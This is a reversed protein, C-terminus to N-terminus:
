KSQEKQETKGNKKEQLMKIIIKKQDERDFGGSNDFLKDAILTFAVDGNKCKMIIENTAKRPLELAPWGRSWYHVLEWQKLKWKDVYVFVGLSVTLEGSGHTYLVLAVKGKPYNLVSYDICHNEERQEKIFSTEDGIFPHFISFDAAQLLPILLWTLSFFTLTIKRM